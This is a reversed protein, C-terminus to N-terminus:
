PKMWNKAAALWPSWTKKSVKWWAGAVHDPSAGTREVQAILDALVKDPLVMRKLLKQARPWKTKVRPTVIKLVAEDKGNAIRGGLSVISRSDIAVAFSPQADAVVFAPDVDARGSELAPLAGSRETPILAVKFGAKKLARGAIHAMIKQGTEAGLIVKIPARSAASAEEFTSAAVAFLLVFALSHLMRGM